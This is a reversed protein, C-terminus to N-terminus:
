GAGGEENLEAKLEDIQKLASVLSRRMKRGELMCRKLEEQVEDVNPKMTSLAYKVSARLNEGTITWDDVSGELGLGTEQPWQEVHDELTTLCYRSVFQGYQCHDKTFRADYFEVLPEDEEHTLGEQRGYTDGRRVVRVNFPIEASNIIQIM